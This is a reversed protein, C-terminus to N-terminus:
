TMWLLLAFLGIVLMIAAFAIWFARASVHAGTETRSRAALKRTDSAHGTRTAGLDSM